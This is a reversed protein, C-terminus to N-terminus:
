LLFALGDFELVFLFYRNVLPFAQLIFGFQFYSILFYDVQSVWQLGKSLKWPILAGKISKPKLLIACTGRCEKWEFIGPFPRKSQQALKSVVQVSASFSVIPKVREIIILGISRQCRLFKPSVLFSSSSVGRWQNHCTKSKSCLYSFRLTCTQEALM